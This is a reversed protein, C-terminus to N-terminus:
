AEVWGVSKILTLRPTGVLPLTGICHKPDPLIVIAKIQVPYREKVYRFAKRLEDIYEILLRYGKREALNVTFFCTAGPVNARHYNIM